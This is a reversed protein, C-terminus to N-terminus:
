ELKLESLKMVIQYILRIGLLLKMILMVVLVMLVEGVQGLVVPRHLPALTGLVYPLLLLQYMKVAFDYKMSTAFRIILTLVPGTIQTMSRNNKTGVYYDQILNSWSLIRGLGSLRHKLHGM